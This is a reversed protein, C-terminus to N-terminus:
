GAMVELLYQMEADVEEPSAVTPRLVNRALDRFRRRLRHIAVSVAGPSLALARGAAEYDAFRGETILLPQLTEFLVEKGAGVCEARLAERAQALVAEAWRRDFTRDAPLDTAPEAVYRNEAQQADLSIREFGGGRKLRNARRHANILFRNVAVLLFSRFRGRRRDVVGLYNKEVLLRFFEQTADEADEPSGLRQRIHAYVPYWYQRCLRELADRAAASQPAGALLVDTWPTTVFRRADHDPSESLDEPTNM